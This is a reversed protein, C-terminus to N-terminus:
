RELKHLQWNVADGSSNNKEGDIKEIEMYHNYIIIMLQYSKSKVFKNISNPGYLIISHLYTHATDLM